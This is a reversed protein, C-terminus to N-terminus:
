YGALYSTGGGGDSDGAFPFLGYGFFGDDVMSGLTFLQGPDLTSDLGNEHHQNQELLPAPPPLPSPISPMLLSGPAATASPYTQQQQQEDFTAYFQRRPETEETTSSPAPFQQM